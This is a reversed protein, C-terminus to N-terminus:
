RRAVRRHRATRDEKGGRRPLVFGEAGAKGCARFASGADGEAGRGEAGGIRSDGRRALHLSVDAEGGQRAHVGQVARRQKSRVSRDFAAVVGGPQRAGCVVAGGAHRARGVGGGGGGGRQEWSGAADFFKGHWAKALRVTNADFVWHLGEPNGALISRPGVGTVFARLVIVEDTPVLEEIGDIRIGEPLPMDPGQQLYSWIADCQEDFRGGLVDKLSSQGETWFSPMRTGPVLKGPDALWRRLYQPRLRDRVTVLDPGPVGLSKAGKVGHCNVCGLGRVGVLQRGFRENGSVVQAPATGNDDAADAKALTQPLDALVERKFIPMRTQYYPRVRLEGKFLIRALAEPLLKAGVGSLHPPIRGEDGLDVNQASKFLENRNPSVGGIGGREHCAFCNLAAMEHIAMEMPDPPAALAALAASDKLVAVIAERQDISLDYRPRGETIQDGLCGEPNEANLEALPKAQKTSPRNPLVHCSACGLMAFMRGGMAAKGPDVTFPEGNLPTMALGADIALVDTPIQQHPIGPGEWWAELAVGGGSQFYNLTVPYTGAKLEVPEGAHEPEAPHIGDFNAVEKGDIWLISGDDSRLGFRYTGDRPIWISGTYRIGFHPPNRRGPIELAFRKVKGASKATSADFKEPRATKFGEEFYEYRLGTGPMPRTTPAPANLQERLLYTAIAKAEVPNLGMAPMRGSPRAHYPDILFESLAALSTKEALKGLPVSPIKPEASAPKEPAHCAACGVSHYLNRGNEVVADTGAGVADTMPGGQSVLFHVLYEVASRKAEEASAHFLDPMTTGPKIAHPNLLFERLYQPTVRAGVDALDPAGRAALRANPAAAHCSVCNLEALLLEGQSAAAVRGSNKLAQYGPVIPAVGADGVAGQAALIVVIIAFIGWRGPNREM